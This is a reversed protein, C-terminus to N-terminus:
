KLANEYLNYKTVDQEFIHYVENQLNNTQPQLPISVVDNM